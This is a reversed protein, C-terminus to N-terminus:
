PRRAGVSRRPRGARATVMSPKKPAATLADGAARDARVSPDTSVEITWPTLGGKGLPIVPKPIRLLAASPKEAREGTGHSEHVGFPVM